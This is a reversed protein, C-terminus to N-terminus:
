TRKVGMYNYYRVAGLLYHPTGEAEVEYIEGSGAPYEVEDMADIATVSYFALRKETVRGAPTDVERTQVEKAMVYITSTAYTEAPWNTPAARAGLARTRLTAAEGFTEIFPGITAM